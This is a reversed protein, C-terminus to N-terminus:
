KKGKIPAYKNLAALGALCKYRDRIASAAVVETNLEIATTDPARVATM